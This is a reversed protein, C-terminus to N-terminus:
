VGFSCMLLMEIRTPSWHLSTAGETSATEWWKASVLNSFNLKMIGPQLKLSKNPWSCSPQLAAHAVARATLLMFHICRWIIGVSILCVGKLFTSLFVVLSPPIAVTAPEWLHRYTQLESNSPNLFLHCHALTNSSSLGCIYETVASNQLKQKSLPFSSM